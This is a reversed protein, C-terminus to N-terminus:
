KSSRMKLSQGEAASFSFSANGGAATIEGIKLQNLDVSEQARVVGALLLLAILVIVKRLVTVGEM